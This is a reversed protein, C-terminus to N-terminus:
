KYIRRMKGFDAVPLNSSPNDFNASWIRGGLCSPNASLFQIMHVLKTSDPSNEMVKVAAQIRTKDISPLDSTAVVNQMPSPFAGPSILGFRIGYKQLQEDISESCVALAGKAAVYGLSVSDLNGGGVGGGAFGIISSGPKLFISAKALAFVPALNSKITSLLEEIKIDELAEVNGFTGLFNLVTIPESSISSFFEILQANALDADEFNILTVDSDRSEKSRKETFRDIYFLNERTNELHPVVYQAMSSSKGVILFKQNM